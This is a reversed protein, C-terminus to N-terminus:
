FTGLRSALVRMIGGFADYPADRPLADVAADPRACEGYISAYWLVHRWARLERRLRRLEARTVDRLTYDM